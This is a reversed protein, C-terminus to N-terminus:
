KSISKPLKIDCYDLIDGDNLEELIVLQNGNESVNKHYFPAFQGLCFHKLCKNEQNLVIWIVIFAETSDVALEELEEKFKVM